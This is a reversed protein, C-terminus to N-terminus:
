KNHISPYVSQNIGAQGRGYRKGGQNNDKSKEKNNEGGKNRDMRSRNNHPSRQNSGLFFLTDEIGGKKKELM